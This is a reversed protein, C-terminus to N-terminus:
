ATKIRPLGMISMMVVTFPFSRFMFGKSSEHSSSGEELSTQKGNSAHKLNLEDSVRPTMLNAYLISASVKVPSNTRNPSRDRIIPNYWCTFLVIPDLELSCLLSISRVDNFPINYDLTLSGCRREKDVGKTHDLSLSLLCHREFPNNSWLVPRDLLYIQCGSHRLDVCDFSEPPDQSFRKREEVMMQVIILNLELQCIRQDLILRTHWLFSLDQRVDIAVRDQILFLRM